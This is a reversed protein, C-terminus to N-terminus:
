RRVRWVRLQQRPPANTWCPTEILVNPLREGFTPISRGAPPIDQPLHSTASAPSSRGRTPGPAWSAGVRLVDELPIVGSLTHEGKETTHPLHAVKQSREMISAIQTTSSPAYRMRLSGGNRTPPGCILKRAPSPATLARAAIIWGPTGLEKVALEAATSAGARGRHGRYGTSQQWSPGM